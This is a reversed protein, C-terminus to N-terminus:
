RAAGAEGASGAEGPAVAGKPELMLLPDGGSVDSFDEVLIKTVTAPCPAPVPAELKVAEVVAVPLGTTVDDGEAVQLRAVGAFPACVVVAGDDGNTESM